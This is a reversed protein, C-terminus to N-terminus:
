GKVPSVGVNEGVGGMQVAHIVGAAAVLIIVLLQGEQLHHEVAAHPIGGRGEIQLHVDLATEQPGNLGAGHGM